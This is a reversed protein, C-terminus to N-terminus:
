AVRRKKQAAYQSFRALVTGVWRLATRETNQQEMEFETQPMVRAWLDARQKDNATAWIAPAALAILTDIRKQHDLVFPNDLNFQIWGAKRTIAPRCIEADVGLHKFQFQWTKVSSSEDVSGSHKPDVKEAKTRKRETEISIVTGSKTTRPNRRERIKAEGNLSAAIAESGEDELIGTEVSQGRDYAIDLLDTLQPIIAAFFDEREAFDLKHTDLRWKPSRSEELLEFYGWIQAGPWDDTGDLLARDNMLRGACSVYWGADWTQNSSNEMVGVVARYPKGEFTGELTRQEILAPRPAPELPSDNITMMLGRELAPLYIQQWLERCKRLGASAFASQKLIGRLEITTGTGEARKPDLEQWSMGQAGSMDGWPIRAERRWGSHFTVVREEDCLMASAQKGGVGYRGVRATRSADEQTSGFEAFRSLDGCGVGNDSIVIRNREESFTIQILDAGADMSNDIHEALASAVNLRMSARISAIFSAHFIIPNTKM